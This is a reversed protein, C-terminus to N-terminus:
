ELIIVVINSNAHKKLFDYIKSIKAKSYSAECDIIVSNITIGRLKRFDNIVDYLSCLRPRLNGPILGRSITDNLKEQSSFFYVPKELEELFLKRAFTSHGSQRPLCFKITGYEKLWELPTYHRNGDKMEQQIQKTWKIMNLLGKYLTKHRIKM